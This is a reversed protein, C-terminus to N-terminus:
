LWIWDTAAKGLDFPPPSSSVWDDLWLMQLLRLKLTLRDFFIWDLAYSDVSFSKELGV